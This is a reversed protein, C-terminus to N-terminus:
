EFDIHNLKYLDQKSFQKIEESLEVLELYEKECSPYLVLDKKDLLINTTIQEEESGKKVKLICLPVDEM